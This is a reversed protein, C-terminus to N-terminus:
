PFPVMEYPSPEEGQCDEGGQRVRKPGGARPLSGGPALTGPGTGTEGAGQPPSVEAARGRSLQGPTGAKNDRRQGPSGTVSPGQTGCPVSLSPVTGERAVLSGRGPGGDGFTILKPTGEPGSPAGGTTLPPTGKRGLQSAEHNKLDNWPIIIIGIKLRMQDKPNEGLSKKSIM